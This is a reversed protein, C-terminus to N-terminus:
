SIIGERKLEKLYKSVTPESLNTDQAIRGIHWSGSKKRYHSAILNTTINIVKNKAHVARMEANKLARAQRTMLVERKNKKIYLTPLAWDRRNYWHWISRCKARVTSKGKKHDAFQGYAWDEIMSSPVPTGEGFERILDETYLKIAWFCYDKGGLGDARAPAHTKKSLSKANQFAM